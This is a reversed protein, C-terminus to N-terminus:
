LMTMLVNKSLGTVKSVFDATAGEKLMRKALELTNKQIGKIEGRKEGIKIGEERGKYRLLGELNMKEESEKMKEYSEKNLNYRKIKEVLKEEIKNNLKIKDLKSKEKVSEVNSCKQISIDKNFCVKLIYKRIEEDQM